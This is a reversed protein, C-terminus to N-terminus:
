EMIKKQIELYHQYQETYTEVADKQPEFVKKVVIYEFAEQPTNFMGAGLGALIAAGVSAAEPTYLAAVPTDTIDAIIQCWVESKSGGGFV